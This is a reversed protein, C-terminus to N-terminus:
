ARRRKSRGGSVGAGKAAGSSAAPRTTASASAAATKVTLAVLNREHLSKLYAVVSTEAQRRNLRYKDCISRAIAEVTRTGDCMEWVDSGIEDLELKRSDPMQFLRAILNGFRDSRRPIRLLAVEPRDDRAERAWTVVSNRVPIAALMQARTVKPKGGSKVLNKVVELVM